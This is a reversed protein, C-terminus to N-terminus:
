LFVDLIQSNSLSFCKACFKPSKADDLFPKFMIPDCIPACYLKVKPWMKCVEIEKIENSAGNHLPEPVNSPVWNGENKLDRCSTKQLDDIMNVWFPTVIYQCHGNQKHKDSFLTIDLLALCLSFPCQRYINVGNQTFWISPRWFVLQRSRFFSPFQTGEFTGSGKAYVPMPKLANQNKLFWKWIKWGWPLKWGQSHIKCGALRVELYRCSLPLYGGRVYTVEPPLTYWYRCRNLRAAVRHGEQKRLKCALCPAARTHM